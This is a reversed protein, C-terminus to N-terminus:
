LGGGGRVCGASGVQHVQLHEVATGTVDQLLRQQYAAWVEDRLGPLPQPTQSQLHLRPLQLLHKASPPLFAQAPRSCCRPVELRCTSRVPPPHFVIEGESM